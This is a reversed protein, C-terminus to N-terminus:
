ATLRAMNDQLYKYLEKIIVQRKPLEISQFEFKKIFRRFVEMVNEPSLQQIKRYSKTQKIWDELEYTFSIIWTQFEQDQNVYREWSLYKEHNVNEYQPTKVKRPPGFVSSTGLEKVVSFLEQAYHILEHEINNELRNMHETTLVVLFKLGAMWAAPRDKSVFDAEQKHMQVRLSRARNALIDLYEDESRGELLLTSAKENERIFPLIGEQEERVKQAYGDMIENGGYKWGTLDVPIDVVKSNEESNNFNDIEELVAKLLLPPVQAIAAHKYWNM